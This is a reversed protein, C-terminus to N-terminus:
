PALEEALTEALPEGGRILSPMVSASVFRSAGAADTDFDIGLLRCGAARALRICAEHLSKPFGDFAIVRQNVVFVTKAPASPDRRKWVAEPDDGSTQRYVSTPLGATGALALWVSPHRWNGCLGQPTPANMMPGRLCHLWSLYFAYMEQLAYDRDPGGVRRMWAAPVGCLRNLVGISRSGNVRRGNPLRLRLRAGSRGVRHEWRADALADGTVVEVDSRHRRLAAAAWLADPDQEECLVVIM